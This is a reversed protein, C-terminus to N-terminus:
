KNKHFSKIKRFMSKDKLKLFLELMPAYNVEIIWVHGDKDFAMDIGMTKVWPYSPALKAASKLAVKDLQALLDETRMTKLQSRQIAQEVPIVKGGSMRINTVIFGAGAVKALKGTVQWRSSPRRQVMVRLDFPRRKVTALRIRQQVIFSKGTKRKLYANVQAQNRFTKKKAGDHLEYESAETKKFRIVGHGGYSGTPKIIVQDYKNMMRWFASEKLWATEPLYARLEKSKRMVKYKSWKSTSLKSM